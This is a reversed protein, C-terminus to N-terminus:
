AYILHTRSKPYKRFCAISHLVPPLKFYFFVTGYQTHACFILKVWQKQLACIKKILSKRSVPEAMNFAGCEAWNHLSAVRRCREPVPVVLGSRVPWATNGAQTTKSQKPFSNPRTILIQGKILLLSVNAPIYMVLSLCLSCSFFSSQSVSLDFSPFISHKIRCLM